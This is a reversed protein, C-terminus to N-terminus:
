AGTACEPSGPGSPCRTKVAVRPGCAWAMSRWAGGPGTLGRVAPSSSGHRQDIADPNINAGLVGDFVTQAPSGGMSEAVHIEPQIRARLRKGGESCLATRGQPGLRFGSANGHAQMREGGDINCFIRRIQCLRGILVQAGIDIDGLGEVRAPDIDMGAIM